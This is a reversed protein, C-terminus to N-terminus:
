KLRVEHASGFVYEKPVWKGDMRAYCGWEWRTEIGTGNAFGRCSIYDIGAFIGALSGFIITWVVVFCCIYDLTDSM